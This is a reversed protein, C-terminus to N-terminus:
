LNFSVATSLVQGGADPNARDPFGLGRVEEHLEGCFFVKAPPLESYTPVNM